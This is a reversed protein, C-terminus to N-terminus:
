VRTSGRRRMRKAPRALWSPRKQSGRSRAGRQLALWQPQLRSAKGRARMPTPTPLQGRECGEFVGFIPGGDPIRNGLFFRSLGRWDCRNAPNKTKDGAPMDALHPAAVVSDTRRVPDGRGAIARCVWVGGRWAVDSANFGGLAALVFGLAMAFCHLISENVACCGNRITALRAGGIRRLLIRCSPMVPSLLMECM